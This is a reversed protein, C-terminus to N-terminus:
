KGTTPHLWAGFLYSERDSGGYSGQSLIADMDAPETISAFSPLILHVFQDHTITYDSSALVAREETDKCFPNNCAQRCSGMDFTSSGWRAWTTADEESPNLFAKLVDSHQKQLLGDDFIGALYKTIPQAKFFDMHKATLRGPVANPPPNQEQSIEFDTQAMAVIKSVAGKGVRTKGLWVISHHRLSGLMGSLIENMFWASVNTLTFPWYTIAKANARGKAYNALAMTIKQEPWGCLPSQEDHSEHDAWEMFQNENNTRPGNDRIHRYGKIRAAKDAGALTKSEFRPGVDYSTVQLGHLQHLLHQVAAGGLRCYNGYDFRMAQGFCHDQIRNVAMKGGHLTYHKCVHYKGTYDDPSDASVAGPEDVVLYLQM